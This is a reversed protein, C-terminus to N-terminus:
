FCICLYPFTQIKERGGIKRPHEQLEQFRLLALAEVLFLLKMKINNWLIARIKEPKLKERGISWFTEGNGSYYGNYRM